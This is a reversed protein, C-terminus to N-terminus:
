RKDEAAKFFLGLDKFGYIDARRFLLHQGQMQAAFDRNWADMCPTALQAAEQNAFYGLSVHPRYQESPSIAFTQRFRTSLAARENALQAFVDEADPDAPALLAVLVSNKWKILRDFRFRIDWDPKSVLPSAAPMETVQNPQEITDPLGDLFAALKHRQEQPAAQVNGDNVGDWLTVHYSTPPLPCFLYTNTLLDIDLDSLSARLSQYFGLEPDTDVECRMEMRNGVHALSSSPNDFLISFGRFSAWRPAFGAVIPNSVTIM